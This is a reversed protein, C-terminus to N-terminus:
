IVFVSSFRFFSLFAWFIDSFGFFGLFDKKSKLIQLIGFGSGGGGQINIYLKRLSKQFVRYITIMENSALSM